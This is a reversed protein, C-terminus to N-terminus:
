EVRFHNALGELSIEEKKYISTLTRGHHHCITLSQHLMLPNM